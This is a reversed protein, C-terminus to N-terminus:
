GIKEELPLKAAILHTCHRRFQHRMKEARQAVRKAAGPVQAHPTLIRVVHDLGAELAHATGQPRRQTAVTLAHGAGLTNQSIGGQSVGRHSREATLSISTTMM